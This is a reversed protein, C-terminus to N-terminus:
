REPASSTSTRPHDKRPRARVRDLWPTLQPGLHEAIMRHAEPTPHAWDDLSLEAQDYGVFIGRLRLLRAVQVGAPNRTLIVRASTAKAIRALALDRTLLEEAQWFLNKRGSRGVRRYSFGYNDLLQCTVDKDRAVITTRVGRRELEWVIHKYFHVHAPHVIDVLVSM